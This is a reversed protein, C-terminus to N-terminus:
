EIRYDINVPEGERTLKIDLSTATRLRAYAELAKEPSGLHYGNISEVVDGDRIGLTGLLTDSRIGLLRIGVVKGDLQVPVIRVSKMLDAQHELVNEVVAHDLRFETDSVRQIKSAIEPPVSRSGRAPAEVHAHASVTAAPTPPSPPRFLLAQCLTDGRSLWVSPSNEAPNYGIYEVRRGAVHAGVRRMSSRPEDAVQLTAVSWLRDSSETTILTTIGECADVHLPDREVFVTDSRVPPPTDIAEVELPGTVSDFANRALIPEATRREVRSAVPPPRMGSAKTARASLAAGLLEAAGSADFYANLALLLLVLVPFYKRLLSDVAM